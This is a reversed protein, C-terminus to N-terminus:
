AAEEGYVLWHTCEPGLEQEAVALYEQYDEDSLVGVWRGNTGKHIFTGAGDKFFAGTMPTVRESNAKMWDFSCHEVIADWNAADIDINLFAAVERIQGPLDQKLNNYHLLKLNPLHRYEWWTRINEWFSWQLHGENKIWAKWFEYPDAVPRTLMSDEHKWNESIWAYFDDKLNYFHNHLSWVVDPLNRTVHIYKARESYVLADLPLHTKIFRRNDQTDLMDLTAHFDPLNLEMWPSYQRPSIAGDGNFILQSVIQQMWTTGAKSYTAIIVDDDRFQFQNWISSDIQNNVIERTKHPWLIESTRPMGTM